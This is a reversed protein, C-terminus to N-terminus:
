LPFIVSMANDSVQTKGWICDHVTGQQNQGFLTGTYMRLSAGTDPDTAVATTFPDQDPLTPMALYFQDGSQIMGARHSPLVKVQMGATISRTINQNKGAASQLPPDITVTVQSGATSQADATAKFQVPVASPIHGIFTRFRINAQGAVNDLFQFKDYQKISDADSAQDTGSFTIATVAGDSNTTVSVVTLTSGAQGETGAIHIPLLNSEYWECKSFSGLEWSNAMDNNRNQAFQNLGSNVITPVVIDSLYGKTSFKAAGFNRFLALGEALQGFSNIPTVGDGYFRYPATVCVDAVDAEVVAGLEEVAGKGFREMYDEVNFIMQQATLAIPVNKSKDVVLNQVRQEVGQFNVVLGDNATFRPPKDFSITDGLNAPNAKQFDKYKKNATAIFCNSNQLYALDAKNYTIVNQLINNPLAM